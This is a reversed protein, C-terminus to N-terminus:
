DEGELASSRTWWLALGGLAAATAAIAITVIGSSEPKPARQRPQKRLKPFLRLGRRPRPLAAVPPPPEPAVPPPAVPIPSPAVPVVVPVPAVKPAEPAAPPAPPRPSPAPPHPTPRPTAAGRRPTQPAAVPAPPQPRLSPSAEAGLGLVRDPGILQPEQVRDPAVEFLVRGAYGVAEAATIAGDGDTDGWGRLAGLVLYSFAPRDADPLPGAVQDAAAAALVTAGSRPATFWVPVMPQSGPVLPSRDGAVGTFCADLVVVARPLSRVLPDVPLGRHTVSSASPQVDAGLILPGSGKPDPAGHGIFVFWLTGSDGLRRSAAAIAEEITERTGQQDRLLRVAGVGRTHSLWQVWADANDVAGPVDQVFAYDSIAVVVAADAGGLGQPPLPDLDPWGAWAAAVLAIVDGGTRARPAAPGGLDPLVRRRRPAGRRPGSRPGAVPGPGRGEPRDPEPGGRRVEAGMPDEGDAPGVGGPGVPRDAAGRGGAALRRGPRPVAAPEGRRLGGGGCHRGGRDPPSGTRPRRRGGVDRRHGDRPGLRPGVPHPRRRLRLGRPGGRDEGRGGPGPGPGGAPGVAPTWTRDLATLGLAMTSWGLTWALGTLQAPVALAATALALTGYIKAGTAADEPHLERALGAGVTAVACVALLPVGYATDVADRWAMAVAGLPLCAALLPAWRSESRQDRAILTPTLLSATALVSAVGLRHIPPGVPLCLLLSGLGTALPVLLTGEPALTPRSRDETREIESGAIWGMAAIWGALWPLGGFRGGIMLISVQAVVTAAGLTVLVGRFSSDQPESRGFTGAIASAVFPAGLAVVVGVSAGPQLVVTGLVALAMGIGIGGAQGERGRGLAIAQLVGGILAVAWIGAIPASPLQAIVSGGAVIIGAVLPAIGQRARVAGAAFISGAALTTTLFMTPTGYGTAALLGWVAASGAVALWALARWRRRTIAWVAGADALVVVILALDAGVQSWLLGPGTGASILALSGLIQSDRRVALWAGLGAVVSLLAVALPAAIWAYWAHSVFLALSLTGLSAGTLGLAMPGYRRSWAFEGAILGLIGIWLASGVAHAPGVLGQQWAAQLLAAVGGVAAIGGVAAVGLAQTRETTWSARDM